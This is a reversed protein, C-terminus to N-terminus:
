AAPEEAAEADPETAQTKQGGTAFAYAVRKATAPDVPIDWREGTVLAVLLMQNGSDDTAVTVLSPGTVRTVRAPQNMAQNLVQALMREAAQQQKAQEIAASLPDHGNVVPM